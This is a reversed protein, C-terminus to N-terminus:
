AEWIYAKRKRGFRGSVLRKLERSPWDRGDLLLLMSFSRTGSQSTPVVPETSIMNLLKQKTAVIQRSNFDPAGGGRGSMRRSGGIKSMVM